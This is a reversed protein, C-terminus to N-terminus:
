RCAACPPLWTDDGVRSSPTRMLGLEYAAAAVQVCDHAALKEAINAVNTNVTDERLFLAEAIEINSM